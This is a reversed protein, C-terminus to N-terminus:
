SAIALQPDTRSARVRGLASHRMVYEIVDAERYLLTKDVRAVPRLAGLQRLRFMYDRTTGMRECAQDMTLYGKVGVSPLDDVQPVGRAM